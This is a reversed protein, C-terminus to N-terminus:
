RPASPTTQGDRSRKRHIRFARVSLKLMTALILKTDIWFTREKVYKVRLANKKQLITDEYVKDADVHGVKEDLSWIEISSFDTIGPKVDLICSEGPRYQSTYQLLEPRPGVLSMDGKLINILQPLEDLKHRRLVAGVMTIRPDKLATTGGGLNEAEPVMSRFKYIRFPKGFQGARVGRYFVPGSSTLKIAIAITFLVPALLILGSFACVRDFAQKLVLRSSCMTTHKFLM